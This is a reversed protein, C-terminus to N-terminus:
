MNESSSPHVRAEHLPTVSIHEPPYPAIVAKLELKRVPDYATPRHWLDQGLAPLVSHVKRLVRCNLACSPHFTHIGM